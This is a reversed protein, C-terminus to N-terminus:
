LNNLREDIEMTEGCDPCVGAYAVSPREGDLSSRLSTNTKMGMAVRTIGCKPCKLPADLLKIYSM